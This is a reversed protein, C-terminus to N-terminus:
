CVKTNALEFYREHEGKRDKNRRTRNGSKFVQSESCKM